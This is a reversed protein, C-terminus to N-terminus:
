NHKKVLNSFNEAMREKIVIKSNWGKRNTGQKSSSVLLMLILDKTITSSTRSDMNMQKLNIKKEKKPQAIEITRDENESTRVKIREMKSSLGEM